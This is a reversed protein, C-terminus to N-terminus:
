KKKRKIFYFGCAALIVVFVVVFVVTMTSDSERISPSSFTIHPGNSASSTSERSDMYSIRVDSGDVIFLLTVLGSNDKLALLDIEMETTSGTISTSTVNGEAAAVLTASDFPNSAGTVATEDWDQGLLAFVKVKRTEDGSVDISSKFKLQDVDDPISSFNFEIATIWDHDISLLDGGGFNSNPSSLIGTGIDVYTDKIPALENASANYAARVPPISVIASFGLVSFLVFIGVIKQNAKLIKM